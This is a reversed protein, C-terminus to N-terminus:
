TRVTKREREKEWKRDQLTPILGFVGCKSFGKVTPILTFDGHKSFGTFTPIVM